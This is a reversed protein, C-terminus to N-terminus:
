YPVVMARPPAGARAITAIRYWTRDGFRKRLRETRDGLDGIYVVDGDIRGMRDIPELVLGPGFPVESYRTDADRAARCEPTISATSSIHVTPDLTQVPPSSPSFIATKVIPAMRKVLPAASDSEAARIADLLSCADRSALLRAASAHTVGLGWLRRLLQAGFREHLVVLAHHVNATQVAQGVDIKLALRAGRAQRALGWVGYDAGAACWAVAVCAITGVMGGRRVRERFHGRWREGLAFPARAVLVAVAPLAPRPARRSVLVGRLGRGSRRVTRAAARGLADHPAPRAIWSHSHAFRSHA